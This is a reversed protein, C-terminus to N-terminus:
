NAIYSGGCPGIADLFLNDSDDFVLSYSLCFVVMRDRLVAVCSGYKLQTILGETGGAMNNNNNAAM